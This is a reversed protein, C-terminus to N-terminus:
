WRDKSLTVFQVLNQAEDTQAEISEMELLDNMVAARELEGQLRRIRGNLIENTERMSHLHADSYSRHSSRSDYDDPRGHRLHRWYEYDSVEDTSSRFYREYSDREREPEDDDEKIEKVPDVRPVELDGNEQEAARLDGGAAHLIELVQM